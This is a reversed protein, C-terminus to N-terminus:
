LLMEVMVVMLLIQESPEVFLCLCLFIIGSTHNWNYQRMKAIISGSEPNDKYLSAYLDLTYM